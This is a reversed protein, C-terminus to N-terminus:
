ATADNRADRSRVLSVALAIAALLALWSIAAGWRFAAPSFEFVVQSPGEPVRVGMFLGNVRFVEAEEGNVRARWGAHFADALVLIGPARSEFALTKSEPRPSELVVAEITGEGELRPGPAEVVSAVAPEFGQGLLGDWQAETDAIASRYAVYARPLAGPNRYLAAGHERLPGVADPDGGRLNRTRDHRNTIVPGIAAADLLPSAFRQPKAGSVFDALPERPFARRHNARHVFDLYALPVLPNYGGVGDVGNGLPLNLPGFGHLLMRESSGAGIERLAAIDDQAPAQAAALPNDRLVDRLPGLAILDLAIWGVFWAARLPWKRFGALAITAAGVTAVGFSLWPAWGVAQSRAAFGALVLTLGLPYALWGVRWLASGSPARAVVRDLGLGALVALAISVPGLARSMGRFGEFVAPWADFLWPHLAAHRGMGLGLLALLGFALGVALRRDLAFLGVAALPLTLAGLYFSTSAFDVTEDAPLVAAAYGHLGLGVLDSPHLSGMAAFEYTMGLSRATLPLHAVAPVIVVAALALGLLNGGAVGLGRRLAVAGGADHATRLALGCVLTAYFFLAGLLVQLTGAFLMLAVFAALRLLGGRSPRTFFRVTAWWWWPLWALIALLMPHEIENAFFGCQGVVIAAVVGGSRSAGLSRALLFAGAAAIWLHLLSSVLYGAVPGLAAVLPTGPYFTALQPDGVLPFGLYTSDSWLPLRGHSVAELWVHLMPTHYHRVDGTYLTHGEFLLPAFSWASIALAIVAGGVRRISRSPEAAESM